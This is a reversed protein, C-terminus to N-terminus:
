LSQLDAASDAQDDPKERRRQQRRDYDAAGGATKDPLEGPMPNFAAEFLLHAGRQWRARRAEEGEGVGAFGVGAVGGGGARHPFRDGVDVATQDLFGLGRERLCSGAHAASLWSRAMSREFAM